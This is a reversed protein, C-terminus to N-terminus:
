TILRIKNEDGYLVEPVKNDVNLFLEVGETNTLNNKLSSNLEELLAKLNMQKNDIPM